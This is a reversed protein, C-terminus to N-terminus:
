RVNGVVTQTGIDGRGQYCKHNETKTIGVMGALIVYERKIKPAEFVVQYRLIDLKSASHM